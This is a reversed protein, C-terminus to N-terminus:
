IKGVIKSFLIAIQLNFKVESPFYSFLKVGFWSIKLKVGFWLINMNRENTKHVYNWNFTISVLRSCPFTDGFICCIDLVPRNLCYILVFSYHKMGFGWKWSFKQMVNILVASRINSCFLYEKKLLSYITRKASSWVMKLNTNFYIEFIITKNRIRVKQRM